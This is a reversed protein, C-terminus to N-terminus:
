EKYDKFYLSKSQFFIDDGHAPEVGIAMLAARVNDVYRRRSKKPSGGIVEFVDMLTQAEKKTLTLLVVAEAM